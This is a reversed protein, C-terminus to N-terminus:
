RATLSKCAHLGNKSMTQHPHHTHPRAQLHVYSLVRTLNINLICTPRGEATTAEELQLLSSPLSPGTSPTRINRQDPNFSLLPPLQDQHDPGKERFNDFDFILGYSPPPLLVAKRLASTPISLSDIMNAEVPLLNRASTCRNYRYHHESIRPLLENPIEGDM